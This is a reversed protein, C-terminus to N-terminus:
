YLSPWIIKLSRLVTPEESLYRLFLYRISPNALNMLPPLISESVIKLLNNDRSILSTLTKSDM